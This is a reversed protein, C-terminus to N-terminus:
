RLCLRIGLAYVPESIKHKHHQAKTHTSDIVIIDDSAEIYDSSFSQTEIEAEPIGIGHDKVRLQARNEKKEISIDISAPPCSYKIGNEILNM